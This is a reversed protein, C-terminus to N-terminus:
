HLLYKGIVVGIGVLVAVFCCWFVLHWVTKIVFKFLGVVLAIGVIILIFLLLPNNLLSLPVSM